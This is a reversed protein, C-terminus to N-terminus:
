IQPKNNRIKVKGVTVILVGVGLCLRKKLFHFSREWTYFPYGKTNMCVNGSLFKCIRSYM